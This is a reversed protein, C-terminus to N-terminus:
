GHNKPQGVKLILAIGAVDVKDIYGLFPNNETFGKIM